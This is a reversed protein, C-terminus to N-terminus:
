HDSVARLAPVAVEIDTHMVAVLAIEPSLLHGLAQSFSETGSDRLTVEGDATTKCSLGVWVPLGTSLAAEIAFGAHEVDQMMELAILDVGAQALLHAQDRYNARAGPPIRQVRSGPAFTSDTLFTSISGAVAVSRDAAVEDRAQLALEVASRNLSEFHDALGVSELTHRSAAFSNTIIVDAGARIYQAHLQRVLNPHTKIATASWAESDMPVGLRRLENGMSGDLIVVADGELVRTLEAAHSSM